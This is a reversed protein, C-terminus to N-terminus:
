FCRDFSFPAIEKRKYGLMNAYQDNIIVQNTILNWDWLGAGTGFIALNLREQQAKLKKQLKEVTRLSNFISFSVILIMNLSGLHGIPFWNVNFVIIGMDHIFAIVYIFSIITFIKRKYKEQAYQTVILFTYFLTFLTFLYFILLFVTPEGTPHSISEGWPLNITRIDYITTYSLLHPHFVRICPLIIWIGTVVWKAYKKGRYNAYKIGFWLLSIMAGATFFMRFRAINVYQHIEVANHILFVTINHLVYFFALLTFWVNTSRNVNKLTLIGHIFFIFVYIGTIIMLSNSFFNM